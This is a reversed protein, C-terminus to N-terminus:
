RATRAGVAAVATGLLGAVAAVVFAARPEHRHAVAAAIANAAGTGVALATSLWGFAEAAAGIPVHDDILLSFTALAPNLPVGALLLVLGMLVLGDVPITLGLCITMAVLLLLLRNAPAATWRGSGYITAGAIGGVSLAAILLGAAAPSGHATAFIPVGVELAGIVAGLLLAGLLVARVAPVRLVSGARQKTDKGPAAPPREPRPTTVPRPTFAPVTAAFGLTGAGALAAVVILAVSSTSVAILGGLILPGALISVEQVLYVLSYAATREGEGAIEGWRARMSTSVPPLALGAVVGLVILLWRLARLNSFGVIGILAAPHVIGCVVMVGAPGRVDILRGQVPRSIGAAISLSGVVAGALPLSGTHQRVVLVIGVGAAGQTMQAVLGTLAQARVAGIRLLPIYASSRLRGGVRSM